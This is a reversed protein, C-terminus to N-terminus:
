QWFLESVIPGQTIQPGQSGENVFEKQFSFNNATGIVIVQKKVMIQNYIFM